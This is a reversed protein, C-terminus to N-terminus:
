IFSFRVLVDLVGAVMIGLCDIELGILLYVLSIPGMDTLSIQRKCDM